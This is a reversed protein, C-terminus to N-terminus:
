NIGKGKHCAEAKITNLSISAIEEWHHKKLQAAHIFYNANAEWFYQWTM